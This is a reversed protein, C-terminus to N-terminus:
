GFASGDCQSRSPFIKEHLSGGSSPCGPSAILQRHVAMAMTSSTSSPGHLLLAIVFALEDLGVDGRENSQELVLRAGVDVEHRRRPTENRVQLSRIRFM